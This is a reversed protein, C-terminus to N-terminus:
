KPPETLLTRLPSLPGLPILQFEMLGALGLPLKDLLEHAEKSDTVNLVFVVGSQDPKVYWQDIKGALYLRATQRMEAPILAKWVDPTAKATFSGIALLKTTPVAFTPDLAPTQTASQALSAIPGTALLVSLGALKTLPAVRRSVKHSKRNTM